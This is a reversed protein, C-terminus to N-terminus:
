RPVNEKGKRFRQDKLRAEHCRAGYMVTTHDRGIVRAIQAWGGGARSMLYFARQRAYVCERRRSPGMFEHWHIGDEKAVRKAIKLLAANSARRDAGHVGLSRALGILEDVLESLKRPPDEDPEEPQAEPVPHESIPLEGWILPHHQAIAWIAAKDQRRMESHMRKEYPCHNKM